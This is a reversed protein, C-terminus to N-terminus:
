SDDDETEGKNGTPADSVDVDDDELANGGTLTSAGGFGRDGAEAANEEAGELDQGNDTGGTLTSAGAYGREADDTSNEIDSAMASGAFLVIAVTSLLTKM